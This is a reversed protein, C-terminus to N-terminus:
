PAFQHADFGTAVGRQGTRHHTRVPHLCINTPVQEDVAQLVAHGVLLAAVLRTAARGKASASSAGGAGTRSADVALEGANGFLAADARTIAAEVDLHLALGRELASGDRARLRRHLLAPVPEVALAPHLQPIQLVRRAVGRLGAAHGHAHALLQAATTRTH